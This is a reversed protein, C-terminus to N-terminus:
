PYWKLPLAGKKVLPALDLAHYIEAWWPNVANHVGAVVDVSKVTPPAPVLQNLRDFISAREANSQARRFLNVLTLSDRLRASKLVTDLLRSREVDGLSELSWRILAARFEPSADPYYAPTLLGTSAIEAVMGRAM